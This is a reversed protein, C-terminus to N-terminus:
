GILDTLTNDEKVLTVSKILGLSKILALMVPKEGLATLTKGKAYQKVKEAFEEGALDIVSSGKVLVAKDGDKEITVGSLQNNKILDEVAVRLAIPNIEGVEISEITYNRFMENEEWPTKLNLQKYRKVLSVCQSEDFGYDWRMVQDFIVKVIVEGVREVHIYIKSALDVLSKSVLNEKDFIKIKYTKKNVKVIFLSLESREIVYIESENM